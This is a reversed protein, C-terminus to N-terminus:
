VGARGSLLLPHPWERCGRSVSRSAAAVGQRNAPHYSLGDGSVLWCTHPGLLPLAETWLLGQAQGRACGGPARLWAKWGLSFGTEGPPEAPVASPCAVRTLPSRPGGCSVLGAPSSPSDRCPSCPLGSRHLPTINCSPSSM